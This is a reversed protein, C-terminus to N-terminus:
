FSLRFSRGTACNAFQNRKDARDTYESKGGREREGERESKRKRLFWYLPRPERALLASERMSIPRFLKHRALASRGNQYINWLGRGRTEREASASSKNINFALPNESTLPCPADRAKNPAHIIQAPFHSLPPRKEHINEPSRPVAAWQAYKKRSPHHLPRPYHVSYTKKQFLQRTMKLNQLTYM